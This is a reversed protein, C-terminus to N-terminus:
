SNLEKLLGLMVEDLNGISRDEDDRMTLQHLPKM